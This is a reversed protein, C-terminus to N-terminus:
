SSCTHRSDPGFLANLALYLDHAQEPGLAEVDEGPRLNAVLGQWNWYRARLARIVAVGTEPEWPEATYFVLIIPGGALARVAKVEADLTELIDM